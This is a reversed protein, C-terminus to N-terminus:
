LACWRAVRALIRSCAQQTTEQPWLGLSAHAQEIGELLEFAPDRAAMTRIAAISIRRDTPNHLAFARITNPAYMQPWACTGSYSLIGVPDPRSLGLHPAVVAVNFALGAGIGAGALVTQGSLGMSAGDLSVRALLACIDQTAAIAPFTSLVADVNRDRQPEILALREVVADPLDVRTAGVRVTPFAMAVGNRTLFDALRRPGTPNVSRDTLCDPGLWVVLPAPRKSAKPLFLDMGLSVRAGEVPMDAYSLGQAQETGAKKDLPLLTM